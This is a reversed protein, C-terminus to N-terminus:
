EIREFVARAEGREDYPINVLFHSGWFRHDGPLAFVQMKVSSLTLRLAADQGYIFIEKSPGKYSDLSSVRLRPGEKDIVCSSGKCFISFSATPMPEELTSVVSYRHDQICVHHQIPTGQRADKLYMFGTNRLDPHVMNSHFSISTTDGQSYSFQKALGSIGFVGEEGLEGSCPGCNVIGVDHFFVGGVGSKCGTGSVYASSDGKRHMWFGLHADFWTYMHQLPDELKSLFAHCLQSRERIPRSIEQSWLSPFLDGSHSFLAQQFSRIKEVYQRSEEYFDAIQILLLGLEAQEAPYPLGGWIFGSQQFLRMYGQEAISLRLFDLPIDKGNELALLLYIARAIDHVRLLPHHYFLRLVTEISKKDRSAHILHSIQSEFNM